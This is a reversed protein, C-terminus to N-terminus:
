KDELIKLINNSYKEILAPVPLNNASYFKRIAKIKDRCYGPDNRITNYDMTRLILLEKEQTTQAPGLIHSTTPTKITM